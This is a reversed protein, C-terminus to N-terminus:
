ATPTTVAPTSIERPKNISLARQPSKNFRSNTVPRNRAMAPMPRYFGGRGYYGGYFGGFGGYPGFMMMSFMRYQFYTTIWSHHSHHYNQSYHAGVHNEYAHPNPNSSISVQKTNKDFTVAVEVLEISKNKAIDEWDADGGPDASFESPDPVRLSYTAGEGEVSEPVILLPDITGDENLDVRYNIDPDNMIKNSFDKVVRRQFEKTDPKENIQISGLVENLVNPLIEPNLKDSLDIKTSIESKGVGVAYGSNGRSEKGKFVWSLVLLGIFAGLFVRM